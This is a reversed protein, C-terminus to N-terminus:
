KIEVTQPLLFFDNPSNALPLRQGTQPDYLGTKLTYTGTPLGEPLTLQYSDTLIESALWGTTPRTGAVPQRDQQAVIEGQANLLHIFVKYSITPTHRAQWYLTLTLNNTTIPSLDYGQLIALEGFPQQTPYSIAPMEFSREPVHVVIGTLPVPPSLTPVLQLQLQYLGASLPLHSPLSTTLAPVVWVQDDRVLSGSVWQSTPYSAGGPSWETQAVTEGQENVLLLRVGYDTTPQHNTQWYLTFPFPQGVEAKTGAFNAGLLEIGDGLNTQLLHSVSINTPNTPQLPPTLEIEALLYRDGSPLGDGNFLLLRRGTTAEYLTVWLQYKGPPTGIIPILSHSDRAYENTQWRNTPLQGPHQQDDQGYIRGQQDLLHLAVSYEATVPPIARWYLQISLSQDTAQSSAPLDYGMLMLQNGFNVQLPMDIESMQQGDFQARRLFNDQRDLYVTKVLGLGIGIFFVLLLQRNSETQWSGVTLQWSGTRLQWILLCIATVLSITEAIRQLPTAAFLLKLEHSGSPIDVAVLGQQGDPFTTLPRGDLTTQWNPFYYWRFHLRTPQEATFILHSNLWHTEELKLQINPNPELRPILTNTQYLPLLTDSAPLEKVWIPLYDGASTTGLAGTQAEFLITDISNPDTQPPYYSPFLWMMGWLAFLPLGLVAGYKPLLRAATAGAFLAVLLSAPGLFRWPFQVFYLLPLNDWVWQSISLTMLSFLFLCLFLFRQSLAFHRIQWLGILALLLQPLALGFPITPNIQAYPVTVPLAILQPLTLFNNAYHFATPAYLQQIQVFQKEWFAPLWFFATLSLSLAPVFALKWRKTQWILVLAYGGLFPTSVLALINHSLILAGYAGVAGLFSRRSPRYAFRYWQWGCWSLWALGWLEPVAGRGYLNYLIYPSYLAALAAVLGSKEGFLEQGWGYVGGVLVALALASGIQWSDEMSFGLVRMPLPLYYSLPAYYHFLPFGFGLGLDPLWRPFWDGYTIAKELQAFRYFHLLGDATRGLGQGWLPQIVVAGGGLFAAALLIM